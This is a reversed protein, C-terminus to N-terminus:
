CKNFLVPHISNLGVFYYPNSGWKYRKLPEFYNKILNLLDIFKENKEFKRKLELILYETKTNGPGRGMGTVTCDIWNVKSKIAELSNELAKGM